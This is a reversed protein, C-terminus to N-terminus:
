VVRSLLGPTWSPAFAAAGNALAFLCLAAVLLHRREVGGTAAVLVPSGLAYAVAFVTILYGASGVSVSLTARTTFGIASVATHAKPM